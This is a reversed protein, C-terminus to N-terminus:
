GVQTAPDDIGRNADDLGRRHGTRAGSEGDDQRSFELRPIAFRFMLLPTARHARPEIFADESGYVSSIPAPMGVHFDLSVAEVPRLDPECIPPRTLLGSM